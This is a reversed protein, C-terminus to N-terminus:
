VHPGLQLLLEMLLLEGLPLVFAFVYLDLVLDLLPKGTHTGLSMGVQLSSPVMESM